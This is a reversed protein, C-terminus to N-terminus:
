KMTPLVRANITHFCVAWCVSAFWCICVSYFGCCATGHFKKKCVPKMRSRRSLFARIPDGLVPLTAAQEKSLLALAFSAAMLIRRVWLGPRGVRPMDLFVWFTLLYFCTLELDTVGGVWAVSETHVPHLAFIAAAIFSLVGDHFLRRALFFVLLVIVGHLAVNVIHYGLPIPGFLKWCLLYGFTMVPRYYSLIGEAGQFSWVSTTFIARLHRFSHVYPNELIQQFDDYIFGNLLSNGYTALVLFLLFCVQALERRSEDKAPM